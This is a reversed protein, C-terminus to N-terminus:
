TTPRTEHDTAEAKALSLPKRVRDQRFKNAPVCNPSVDINILLGGHTQRIDKLPILFPGRPPALVLPEEPPIDGIVMPSSAKSAYLAKFPL